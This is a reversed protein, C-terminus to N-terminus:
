VSRRISRLQRLVALFTSVAEQRPFEEVYGLDLHIGLDRVAASLTVFETSVRLPAQPLQHLRRSIASWLIENKAVILQLRSSRM